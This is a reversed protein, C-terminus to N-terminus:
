TIILDFPDVVLVKECVQHGIAGDLLEVKALSIERISYNFAESLVQLLWAKCQRVQIETLVVDRIRTELDQGLGEYVVLREM